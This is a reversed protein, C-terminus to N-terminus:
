ESHASPARPVQQESASRNGWKECGKALFGARLEDFPRSKSKPHRLAEASRNFELLYFLPRLRARGMGVGHWRGVVFAGLMGERWLTFLFGVTLPGRCRWPRKKRPDTTSVCKPNKLWFFPGRRPSLTFYCHWPKSRERPSYSITGGGSGPFGSVRPSGLFCRRSRTHLLYRLCYRLETWLEVIALCM